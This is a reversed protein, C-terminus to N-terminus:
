GAVSAQSGNHSSKSGSKSSGTGDRSGSSSGELGRDKRNKANRQKMAKQLFKELKEFRDNEDDGGEEEEPWPMTASTSGGYRRISDVTTPNLAAPELVQVGGALGVDGANFELKEEFRMVGLFSNWRKRPVSPMTEVIIRMRSLRAFGVMDEYISDYACTLQAILLNLLFVLTLVLFVFVVALVVPEDHLTTYAEEQFTQLVMKLLAASGKEIGHFDEIKSVVSIGSAFALTMGALSLLFLGVESMMQGCVLVFASVRNSFVALDVLLAYYFFVALMSSITYKTRLSTAAPCYELFNKHPDYGWCHLIPEMALMAILSGMLLFNGLEMKDEIYDPLPIRWVKVVDGNRYCRIVKRMHVYLLQPLSCCYIFIRCGFISAREWEEGGGEPNKHLHHLVSQSIIFVLLTLVFWLKGFLFTAYAVKSWIIDTLLVIIPHCVVKPDGLDTIWEMAENFKGEPNVVLYKIYYNVRRQGDEVVRSRWILGDFLVNLLVPAEVCIKRVIDPHRSFLQDSGYYYCDRDARITLLDKIIAHATDVSGSELAWALPSIDQTGVQVILMWEAREGRPACSLAREVQKASNNNIAKMVITSGESINRTLTKAVLALSWRFAQIAVQNHTTATVVKVYSDVFPTFVEIDVGYGAHRLGLASIEDAMRVPEKFIELTMNMIQRMVTHLYTSSQKFYNQGAPCVSFFTSLVDKCVEHVQMEDYGHILKALAAEWVPPQGFNKKLLREVNDWLWSWAVEHSTSWDKPLLSRLSALMCSKYELWSIAQKPNTCQAIRLSLFDCEEQLRSSNSVNVVINHFCSLVEQMWKRDGFGMVAANFQFMDHYNTPVHNSQVTGGGEEANDSGSARSAQKGKKAATTPEHKIESIDQSNRQNNAEKKDNAIRWSQLLITIREAYNEKVFVIAGAIYSLIHKWANFAETTMAEGLEVGFLDLIADRVLIAKPVSVDFHLHNFCLIEVALKLRAPDGLVQAVNQLGMLFRQAMVAKPTTFLPQLTPAGEFIAVYIAEGAAEQTQATQLFRRWLEEAAAVVSEDLVLEEFTSTNIEIEEDDDGDEDPESQADGEKHGSAEDEEGDSHVDLGVGGGKDDGSADSATASSGTEEEDEHGNGVREAAAAQRAVSSVVSGVVFDKLMEQPKSTRHAVKVAQTADKGAFQQLVAAGGPHHHQFRTVDCVQGDVVLWLSQQSRHRAIEEATFQGQRRGFM